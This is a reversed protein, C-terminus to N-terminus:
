KSFHTVTSETMLIYNFTRGEKIIRESKEAISGNIVGDQTLIGALYMEAIAEIIGSGM